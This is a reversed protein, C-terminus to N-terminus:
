PRKLLYHQRAPHSLERQLDLLELWDTAPVLSPEREWEQYYTISDDEKEWEQFFHGGGEPLEWEQSRPHILAESFEEPFLLEVTAEQYHYSGYYYPYTREDSRLFLPRQIVGPLSGYLFPLDVVAYRPVRVTFAERGPYEAFETILEREARASQSVAAVSEQFFRNREEPPLEEFFRNKQGFAEGYYTVERTILAEGEADIEVRYYSEQRNKFPEDVEIFWVRGSPLKLAPYDAYGCVGLADYQNTDNLYIPFEEGQVLVLVKGFSHSQPHDLLIEQLTDELPLGGTLVFRPKLGAAELMAYLLIARDPDNGYGDVLTQPAATLASLPLDYLGPGAARIKRAVFDRITRIKEDRSEVGDLLALTTTSVAEAPAAKKLLADHVEEALNDLDATSLLLAPNYIWWPPTDDELKVGSQNEITWVKEVQEGTEQISEKVDPADALYPLPDDADNLWHSMELSEPMKLRLIKERLPDSERFVAMLSFFPQDRYTRRITYRVIAGEEVGPLSAVLTKGAPYRPASGVWGADMLNIEQDSVEKVVGDKEVTAKVIEVDEWVPNYSLQIESNEKKGKYTLIKKEVKDTRVWNRGDELEFTIEKKLTLVDGKESFAPGEGGAAEELIIKKRGQYEMEKLDKKLQLYADPDLEVAKIKFVGRSHLKDEEQSLSRKWAHTERDLEPYEPLSLCRGLEPAVQLELDEEVGCAYHTLLPYKRKELGLNGLIFNVMGVRAGIRPLPLLTMEGQRIPLNKAEFKLEMRLPTETDLMNEPEIVVGKLVSGPAVAKIVGNLYEEREEPKLRSFYGRYANDNIGDFHMVCSGTLTGESNVEARTQLRMMNEEAPVIPSVRLGDGDPRAVLYSKDCLYAPFLERTNEDTSDMLTYSGDERLVATVAHNFYPQPVETDKKPGTHILVPFADLGAERLMAVLLAAKDRCVGHRNEFTMAADHPEYGPAEEEVTIGMYRIEQSVWTFIARIKADNDDLGNTLEATKKRIAPTTAFHPESLNWYWKSIAEWDEVTSVLLRQVVRYLAPMAPEEYMRPVDQIEWRYLLRKGKESQSFRVTGEVEDKLVRNILPLSKPGNVEYVYHRIPSTYELVQYDSFTDPM